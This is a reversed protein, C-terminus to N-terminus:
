KIEETNSFIRKEILPRLKEYLAKTAQLDDRCHKIIEEKAKEDKVQIYNFYLNQVDKGDLALFEKRISFTKCIEALSYKGKSLSLNNFVYEFLDITKAQVSTIINSFDDDFGNLIMLRTILFSYDFKKINFGAVCDFEDLKKFVKKINELEEKENENFFFEEKDGLLGICVTRSFDARLGTSEIDLFAIHKTM